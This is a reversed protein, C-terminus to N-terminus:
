FFNLFARMQARLFKSRWFLFSESSTNFFFLKFKIIEDLNLITNKKKKFEFNM